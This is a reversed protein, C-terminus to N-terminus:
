RGGHVGGTQRNGWLYDVRTYLLFHVGSFLANGPIAALDIEAELAKGVQERVMLLCVPFTRFLQWISFLQFFYFNLVVFL